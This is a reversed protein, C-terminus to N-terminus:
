RQGTLQAIVRKIEQPVYADDYYREIKAELRQNQLWDNLAQSQKSRLASADLTREQEHGLSQIVHVGYTTTVPQSTQNVQLSFAADEFAQIKMGRSLWGLDGGQEKSGTDGSVDQAVKAFDEGKKLREEVQQAEDYTKVLIHRVNVQEDTTKVQAALQDQLKRRLLHMEVYKRFDAESVSANKQMADLAQKKQDLFGQYTLPTSTPYPTETPGSTPTVTPTTPTLTRTPTLTIAPTRTVTPTLTATRTTTPTPSPGATPTPTARAYGFDTEVEQDIEDQTVAINRRAAEQRVLEDDIMTELTTRPLSVMELQIQNLQQELSSKLFGLTPDSNVTALNQQLQNLQGLLNGGDYRIRKQYERVTFSTGNVSAIPNDLKGINERYYGIGLVVAILLAVSGLALYLMLQQREERVRRIQQKRTEQQVRRGQKPM